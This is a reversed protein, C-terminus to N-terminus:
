LDSGGILASRNATTAAMATADNLLSSSIALLELQATQDLISTDKPISVDVLVQATALKSTDVNREVRAARLVIHDNGTAGPNTLKRQVEVLYPTALDRGAVKYTAGNASQSVLAFTVQNTNDKYPTLSSSAM